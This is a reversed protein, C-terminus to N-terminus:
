SDGRSSSLATSERREFLVLGKKGERSSPFALGRSSSLATRARREFLALYTESGQVGISSSLATRERILVLCNKGESIELTAELPCSQAKSEEFSKV